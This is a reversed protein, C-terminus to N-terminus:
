SSYIRKKKKVFHKKKLQTNDEIHTTIKRSNKFTNVKNFPQAQNVTVRSTNFLTKYDMSSM